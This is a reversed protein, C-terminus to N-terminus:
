TEREIGSDIIRDCSLGALWAAGRGGELRALAERLMQLVGLLRM